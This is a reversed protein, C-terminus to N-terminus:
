TKTQSLVPVVGYMNSVIYLSKSRAHPLRLQSLTEHSEESKFCDLM